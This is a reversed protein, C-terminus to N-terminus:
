SNLLVKMIGLYCNGFSLIDKLLKNDLINKRRRRPRIEGEPDHSVVNSM